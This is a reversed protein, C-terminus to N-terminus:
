LPADDNSGSRRQRSVILITALVVVIGIVGFYLLDGSTKHSADPTQGVSQVHWAVLLAGVILTFASTGITRLIPPASWWSRRGHSSRHENM